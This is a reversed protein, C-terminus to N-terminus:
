GKPFLMVGPLGTFHADCTVLEAGAALASAYVIADATALRHERAIDAAELALRTDLPVVVCLETFAIVQDASDEGRERLFWKRLEHQVITPVVCEQQEPIEGALEGALPSDIFWEIWASTDVLRM